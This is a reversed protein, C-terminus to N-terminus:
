EESRSRAGIGGRWRPGGVGGRGGGRIPRIPLFVLRVWNRPDVELLGVLDWERISGSEAGPPASGRTQAPGGPGAGRHRQVMAGHERRRRTIVKNWLIIFSLRMAMKQRAAVRRAVSGFSAVLRQHAFTTASALSPM